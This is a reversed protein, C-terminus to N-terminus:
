MSALQRVQLMCRTTRLRRSSTLVPQSRLSFDWLLKTYAAMKGTSSQDPQACKRGGLATGRQDMQKRSCDLSDKVYHPPWRALPADYQLHNLFPRKDDYNYRKYSKRGAGNTAEIDV